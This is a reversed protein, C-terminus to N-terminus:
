GRWKRGTSRNGTTPKRSKGANASATVNKRTDTVDSFARARPSTPKKPSAAAGATYFGTRARTTRRSQKRHRPLGSIANDYDSMFDDEKNM